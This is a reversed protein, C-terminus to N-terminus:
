DRWCYLPDDPDTGPVLWGSENARWYPYMTWGAYYVPHYREHRDGDFYIIFM